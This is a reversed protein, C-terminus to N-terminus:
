NFKFVSLVFIVVFLFLQISQVWTMSRKIVYLQPASENHLTAAQLVKRFSNGLRRRNALGNIIILLLVGMKIRFWTQQGWVEHLYAMMGVGSLIILMMGIGVFTQFRYVISEVTLAKTKDVPWFKWIQRFTILDIFSGGAVLTIGIIHTVLCISYITHQM